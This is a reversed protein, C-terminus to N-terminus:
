TQASKQNKPESSRDMFELMRESQHLYEKLLNAFFHVAQSKFHRRLKPPSARPDSPALLDTHLECHPGNLVTRGHIHMVSARATYVM